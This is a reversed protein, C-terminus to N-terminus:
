RLFQASQENNNEEFKRSDNAPTRCGWVVAEFCEDDTADPHEERYLEMLDFLTEADEYTM